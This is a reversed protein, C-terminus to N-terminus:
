QPYYVEVGGGHHGTRICRNIETNEDNRGRSKGRNFATNQNDNKEGLISGRRKQPKRTNCVLSSSSAECSAFVIIITLESNSKLSKRFCLWIIFPMTLKLPIAFMVAPMAPLSVGSCILLASAHRRYATSIQTGQTAHPTTPKLHSNKCCLYWYPGPM